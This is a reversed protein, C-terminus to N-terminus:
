AIENSDGYGPISYPNSLITQEFTIRVLEVDPTQYQKKNEM